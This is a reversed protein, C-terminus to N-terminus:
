RNEPPHQSLLVNNVQDRVATDMVYNFSMIEDLSANFVFVSRKGEPTRGSIIFSELERIKSGTIIKAVEVEEEAADKGKGGNLMIINNQNNPKKTVTAGGNSLITPSFLNIRSLGLTYLCYM